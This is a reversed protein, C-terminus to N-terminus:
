AALRAKLAAEVSYALTVLPPPSSGELRASLVATHATWGGGVDALEAEPLRTHSIALLVRDGRPELEFLVQSGGGAGDDDPGLWEVALARNPEWRTVVYTSLVDQPRGVTEARFRLGVRREPGLDGDAEAFWLALKDAETLFAWARELPGPLLREVRISPTRPKLAITLADPNM